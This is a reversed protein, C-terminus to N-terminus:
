ETKIKKNRQVHYWGIVVLGVFLSTELMWFLTALSVLPVMLMGMVLAHQHLFWQAVKRPKELSLCYTCSPYLVRYPLLLQHALWQYSLGTDFFGGLLLTGSDQFSVYTSAVVNNVVVTGSQTFPAYAGKDQITTIATVVQPKNGLTVLSDGVKVLSAPVFGRNEVLVMHDRSLQLKSPLLQLYEATLESDHHAFSYVPEYKGSAVLVSEGVQLESMAKVGQNTQVTSSASFCFIPGGNGGGPGPAPAPPSTIRGGQQECYEPPPNAMICLTNSIWTQFGSIKSYLSPSDEQGCGDISGIGVLLDRGKAGAGTV